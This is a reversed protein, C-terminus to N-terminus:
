GRSDRDANPIRELRRQAEYSRDRHPICRSEVNADTREEGEPNLRWRVLELRAALTRRDADPLDRFGEYARLAAALEGRRAARAVLAAKTTPAAHWLAVLTASM